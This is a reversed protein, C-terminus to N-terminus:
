MLAGFSTKDQESVNCTVNGFCVQNMQMIYEDPLLMKTKILENFEGRLENAAITDLM